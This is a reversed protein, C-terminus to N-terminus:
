TLAAPAEGQVAWEIGMGLKLDEFAACARCIVSTILYAKQRISTLDKRQAYSERHADSTKARAYPAWEMSTYHHVERWNRMQVRM